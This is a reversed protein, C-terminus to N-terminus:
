YVLRGQHLGFQSVCAENRTVKLKTWPASRRLVSRAHSLAHVCGLRIVAAVVLEGLVDSTCWDLEGADNQWVRICREGSLVIICARAVRDITTAAHNYDSV